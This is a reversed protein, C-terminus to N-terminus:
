VKFRGNKLLLKLIIFTGIATIIIEPIMYLGNYLTSYLLALRSGSLNSLAWSSLGGLVAGDGEFWWEAYEGFLIFGSLIHCIYRLLTVILAGMAGRVPTMKKNKANMGSLGLVTFALVYDLMIMLATLYWNDLIFSRGDTAISQLLQLASYCGCTLLGWPVGYICSVVIVPVMSFLTMSGGFPLWGIKVFSLVFSLALMVGSIVLRETSKKRKMNLRGVNTNDVDPLPYLRLKM